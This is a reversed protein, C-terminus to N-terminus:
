LNINDIEIAIELDDKKAYVDLYGKRDKFEGSRKKSRCKYRFIIEYEIRSFFGNKDFLNKLTKQFFFHSEQHDIMKRCKSMTKKIEKLIIDSITENFTM